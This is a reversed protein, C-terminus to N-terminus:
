RAVVVERLWAAFGEEDLDGAALARVVYVVEAEEAEITAGNLGLYSSAAMFATRKNGDVFPRSRFISAAYAAALANRDVDEGDAFVQRPHALAAALSGPDRLGWTGGHAALQRRHIEEVM